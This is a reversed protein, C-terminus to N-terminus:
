FFTGIMCPRVQITIWSHGISVSPSNAQIVADRGGVITIPNGEEGAVTSKVRHTYIGNSLVITDGGVAYHLAEELSIINVSSNNSNTVYESFPTLSVDDPAVNFTFADAPQVHFALFISAAPLLLRAFCSTIATMISM